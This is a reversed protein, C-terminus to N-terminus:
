LCTFVSPMITRRHMSPMGFFLFDSFRFIPFEVEPLEVYVVDGLESQAFDTIGVTATGDQFFEYTL